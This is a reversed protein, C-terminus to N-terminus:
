QWGTKTNEIKKSNKEFERNRTSYSNISVIIKTKVKERGEGVQESQFPLGLPAKYNKSNKQQKKPIKQSLNPLIQNSRYNKNERKRQNERGTEAQFSAM